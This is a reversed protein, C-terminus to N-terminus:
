CLYVAVEYPVHNPLVGPTGFSADHHEPDVGIKPTPSKLWSPMCVEEAMVRWRLM